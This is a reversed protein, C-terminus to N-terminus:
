PFARFSGTIAISNKNNKLRVTTDSVKHGWPSCCELGGEGEGDRLIQGDEHANCPHHWATM